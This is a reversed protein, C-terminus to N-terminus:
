MNNRFSVENDETSAKNWQVLDSDNSYNLRYSSVWKGSTNDGLTAVYEIEYLRGLDVQLYPKDDLVPACWSSGSSIRALAPHHGSQSASAKFSSDPFYDKLELLPNACVTGKFLSILTFEIIKPLEFRFLPSVILPLSPIFFSFSFPVQGM